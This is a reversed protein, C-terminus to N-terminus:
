RNTSLVIAGSATGAGFSVIKDIVNSTLRGKRNDPVYFIDGPALAVDPSKRDMIKRLEVVLEQKSGDSPRYIYAQKTAFRSLGEAMALAKLVTMGGADTLPFSGPKLVNGVLFVRGVEPVRVEEGGELSLNAAPDAKELLDLVPIKRTFAPVGDKAPLTVLIEHGAEASLGEARTIADLLTTKGNAQFTLPKKVAGAVNIPRSAFEAITVTVVPDVLIQEASLGQAVKSEIELPMLGRVPISEKLMPLRISGEPTVRLTRSLEPAGYVTISLLDSAGVPQAPLNGGSDVPTAPLRGQGLACLAFAFIAILKM